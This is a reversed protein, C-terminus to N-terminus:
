NELNLLGDLGTQNLWDIPMQIPRAPPPPPPPPPAVVETPAPREDVAITVTSWAVQSGLFRLRGQAQDIESVIRGLEAEIRLIEDLTETRALLARMRELLATLSQIRVELDHYEESVDQVQVNRATVDGEQQYSGFIEHFRPSPIRVVVQRADRSSLYGGQAVTVDVLRDLAAQARGHDVLLALQATYILRLRQDSPVPLVAVQDPAVIPQTSAQPSHGPAPSPMPEAMAEAMGAMDQGGSSPTAGGYDAAQPSMAMAGCGTLLIPLLLARM